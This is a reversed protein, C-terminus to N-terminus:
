HRNATAPLAERNPITVYALFTHDTQTFRAAGGYQEAIATISKIGYGHRRSDAKTTTLDEHREETPNETSINIEANEVSILLNIYRSGQNKENAEIANDLLNGLIVALEIENIFIEAHYFYKFDTKIKNEDCRGLKSQIIADITPHGTNVIRDGSTLVAITASLYNEAEQPNGNEIQALVATYANKLDHRIKSIEQQSSYIAEYHARQVSMNEKLFDLELRDKVLKSQRGLLEFEAINGIFLLILAVLFLIQVAKNEMQLMAPELMFSIIMSSFPMLLLLPISKSDYFLESKKNQHILRTILVTIYLLIKTVIGLIIWDIGRADSVYYNTNKLLMSLAGVILECVVTDVTFIATFVAKLYVRCDYAFSLAFFFIVCFVLQFYDLHLYSNVMQLLCVIGLFLYHKVGNYKPKFFTGLLMNYCYIEVVATLVLFIKTLM